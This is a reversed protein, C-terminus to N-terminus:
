TSNARTPFAGERVFTTGLKVRYTIVSDFPLGELHATFRIARKM